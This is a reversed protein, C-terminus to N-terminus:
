GGEMIPLLLVQDGEKLITHLFVNKHNVMIAMQETKLPLSNFTVSLSKLLDAVTAEDILNVSVQDVGVIQRLFSFFKVTVIM